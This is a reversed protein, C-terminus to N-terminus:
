PFQAEIVYKWTNKLFSYVTEQPLCQPSAVRSGNVLGKGQRGSAPRSYAILEQLWQLVSRYVAKGYNGCAREEAQGVWEEERRSMSFEM